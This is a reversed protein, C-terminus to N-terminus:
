LGIAKYLRPLDVHQELLSQFNKLKETQGLSTKGFLKEIMDVTEITNDRALLVPVKFEDAQKVILPLPRLNGTLVLCSTSTELAALQIDTRDGGTIVAKNRQRRFRSLAAEANMAGVTLNEIAGDLPATSTLVEANLARVVDQVTPAALEPVEPLIGLVAIGSKELFPAALNKLYPYAADPTRNIIVGALSDKIRYSMAMIDDLTRVEGYYSVVGIVHSKLAAAVKLSPLGVAYGERMTGGGELLMIDQGESCKAYAAEVIAMPEGTDKGLLRNRLSEPTVITPSLEWPEQNLGLAEKIFAADEDAFKDGIRWPNLSLPKLYGVKQGQEQFKKGLALCVATKGSYRAVSTIYLNIM